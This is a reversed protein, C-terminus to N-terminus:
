KTVLSLLSEFNTVVEYKVAGNNLKHFLKKACDIKAKEIARLDFSEMSGKTEAVFYIHKLSGEKFAVAWDPTYNGVPTPIKFGKPLKAYVAVEEQSDIERVFKGEISNTLGDIFVLDQIHKAAKFSKELKTHKEETFINIDYPQESSIDYTIESIIMTSKQENILRTVQHIFDEPNERFMMFKKPRIKKLIAVITKRTLTTGQAIKGVLDYKVRSPAQFDVTQTKTSKIEFAKSHEVDHRNLEGKQAGKTISYRLTKVYLSKDISEVAKDILEDSNFQVKYIYKHNLYNWLEIFEKKYFNDNLPNNIETNKSGDIFMDDLAKENYVSQILKYIGEAMPQIDEPLAELSNNKEAAYYVDTLKDDDDIYDNKALYKYILKAQQENITFEQNDVRIIKDQFYNFDAKTPRDYLNEKIDKQLDDVFEAYSGSSVVTLTNYSEFLKDNECVAYDMRNGDQNVCIRLGRGVEQRKQTADGSLRLTCIQFINPNDWGERLASHSFIFRTPEAFSLLREKDKMILDYASEDDSLKDGKVKSDIFRASKKDISFYGNHVRKEDACYQRLYQQYPNSEDVGLYQNLIRLYEEEFIRGYEGTRPQNDEDYVRYKAVEDIFFLSLVKIGAGYLRAEKQFHSQITQRIQLRVNTAKQEDHISQALILHEGNQFHVVGNNPDIDTIVYGKYQNLENSEYFIDDEVGLIKTQRKINGSKLKVEYEIQAQPPKSKSLKIDKLALYAGRGGANEVQLGVVEIKKVLRQNFADLPDLVYVTNHKVKHTASYNLSFLANFNDKLAKQTSNGSIKQPEDLILIPNNAKIVDIPRRSQFDDRESYIIKSAKTNKKTLTSNFAQTNIIMVNIGSNKSFNDILTLNKSDYIFYHAKKHYTEMFHDEMMEFSKKVGERIAISPVVIIFKSWGYVRNLEFITKIYVYTKGTGTEMEIDLSCRGLEQNLASDVRINNARQIENINALLEEDSLKLEANKFGIDDYDKLASGVDIKYREEESAVQGAFVKIVNDVARTQYDQIKFKFKM